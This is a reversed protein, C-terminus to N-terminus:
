NQLFRSLKRMSMSGYLCILKCESPSWVIFDSIRDGAEDVVGFLRMDEGGDKTEMLLDVGDLMRDLRRSFRERAEPSADEFDVVSVSRIGNLLSLLEASDQDGSERVAKRVITKVLGMTLRGVRVVEFGNTGSFDGVLTTIQQRPLAQTKGQAAVGTLPVLALFLIVFLKKM